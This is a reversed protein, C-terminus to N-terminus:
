PKPIAILGVHIISIPVYICQETHIPMIFLSFTQGIIPTFQRIHVCVKTKTPIVM